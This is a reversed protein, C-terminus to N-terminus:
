GVLGNVIQVGVRDSGILVRRKLEETVKPSAEFLSVELKGVSCKQLFIDALQLSFYGMNAGLDLVCLREQAAVPGWETIADTIAETYEANVFLDNYTCWDAYNRVIVSIGSRLKFDLHMRETLIRWLSHKFTSLLSM